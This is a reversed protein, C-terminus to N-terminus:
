VAAAKRLKCPTAAVSSAPTDLHAGSRFYTLCAKEWNKWGFDEAKSWEKTKWTNMDMDLKEEAALLKEM